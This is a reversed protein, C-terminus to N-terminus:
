LGPVNGRLLSELGHSVLGGPASDVGAADIARRLGETSGINSVKLFGNLGIELDPSRRVTIIGM